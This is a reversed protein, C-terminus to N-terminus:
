KMTTTTTQEVPVGGAEAAFDSTVPSTAGHLPAVPVCLDRVFPLPDADGRRRSGSRGTAGSESGSEESARTDTDTDTDADTNTGENANNTNKVVGARTTANNNNSSSNYFKRRRLGHERPDVLAEWCELLEPPSGFPACEL